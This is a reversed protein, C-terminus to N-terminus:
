IQGSRGPTPKGPATLQQHELVFLAQLVSLSEQPMGQFRPAIANQPPSTTITQVDKTTLGAKAFAESFEHFRFRNPTGRNSGMLHWLWTPFQLFTWPDDYQRWCDHPGFDVLHIAIGDEKLLDATKQAYSEIDQVHEGVYFSCVVDFQGTEQANLTEIGTRYIDIKDMYAEPFQEPDLWDPFPTDPFFAAWHQATAQYWYRAEATNVDGMFRDLTAYRSVGYALFAVGSTLYDGPGIEIISAGKLDPVLEKVRLLPSFIYREAAEQTITTVAETTRGHVIRRQRIAPIGMLSNKIIEKTVNVWVSM